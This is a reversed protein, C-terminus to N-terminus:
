DSQHSGPMSATVRIQGLDATTIAAGAIAFPRQWGGTFGIFGATNGVTALKLDAASDGVILVRASAVTLAACAQELFGPDTKTLFPPQIGQWHDLCQTLSHTTVFDEVQVQSDSSILGLKLPASRLQNLLVLAGAVPPTQAAKPTLYSDAEAFATEVLDLADIWGRGTEAVYAAAAIANERRSGVALLGTPNLGETELGFALALPAEVGPAQADILRARKQGLHRLYAEVQALTGDKDFLIAEVPEFRCGACEIAVM